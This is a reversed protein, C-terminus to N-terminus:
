TKFKKLLSIMRGADEKKEILTESWSCGHDQLGIMFKLGYWIRKYWPLYPSMQVNFSIWEWLEQEPWKEKQEDSLGEKYYKVSMLHNNSYCDCEFYETIEIDKDNMDNKLGM